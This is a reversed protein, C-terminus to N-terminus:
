ASFPSRAMSRLNVKSKGPNIKRALYNSFNAAYFVCISFTDIWRLQLVFHLVSFLAAIVLLNAWVEKPSFDKDDVDRDSLFEFKYFFLALLGQFINWYGLLVLVRYQEKLLSMGGYIGAVVGLSIGTLLIARKDFESKRGSFFLHKLSIVCGGVLIGVIALTKPGATGGFALDAISQIFGPSLQCLFLLVVVMLGVSLEDFYPVLLWHFFEEIKDTKAQELRSLRKKETKTVSLSNNSFTECIGPSSFVEITANKAKKSKKMEANFGKMVFDSVPGM